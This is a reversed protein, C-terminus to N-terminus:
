TYTSTTQKESCGIHSTGYIDSGVPLINGPCIAQPIFLKVHLHVHIYHVSVVHYIIYKEAQLNCLMCKSSIIQCFVNFVPDVLSLM